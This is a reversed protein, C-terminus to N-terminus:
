GIFASNFLILRTMKPTFIEPKFSKNMQSSIVEFGPTKASGVGMKLLFRM